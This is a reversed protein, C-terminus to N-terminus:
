QKQGITQLLHLIETQNKLRAIGEATKGRIRTHRDVGAELLVKVVGVHGGAVALHLASSTNTGTPYNADLLLKVLRENGTDIAIKMHELTAFIREEDQKLFFSVSSLNQSDIAHTMAVFGMDDQEYINCNKSILLSMVDTKDFPSGSAFHLATAGELSTTASIGAAILLKVVEVSGGFQVCWQLINRGTLKNVFNVDAKVSLLYEVAPFKGNESALHLPSRGRFEMPENPINVAPKKSEITNVDAKSEVLYRIVEVHGPFSADCL